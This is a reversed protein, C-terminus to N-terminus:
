KIYGLRLLMYESITEPVYKAGYDSCFAKLYYSCFFTDPFVYLINM